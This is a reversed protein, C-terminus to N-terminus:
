FRIEFHDYREDLDDHAVEVTDVQAFAPGKWCWALMQDLLDQTGSFVAEVRGDALNRVWGTLGLRQAEVSTSQRYGVGQVRGSIYVHLRVFM